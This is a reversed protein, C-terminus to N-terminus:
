ENKRSNIMGFIVKAINFLTFSLLIVSIRDFASPRGGRQVHGLVTIRTDLGMDDALIKRIHECKIAKGETDVAGEAVIAIVTRKGFKLDRNIRAIMDERWAVPGVNEPLFVYDANSCVAATLALYGCNRGM